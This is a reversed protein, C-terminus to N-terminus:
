DELQNIMCLGIGVEDELKHHMKLDDKQRLLQRGDGTVEPETRKLVCTGFSVLPKQHVLEIAALEEAWVLLLEVRTFGLFGHESILIDISTSFFSFSLALALLSLLGLITTTENKLGLGTEIVADDQKEIEVRQIGTNDLLVTQAESSDVTAM